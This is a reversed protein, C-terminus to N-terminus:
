PQNQHREGLSKRCRKTQTRNQKCIKLVGLSCHSCMVPMVGIIESLALLVGNCRVAVAVAVTVAVALGALALAVAVAVIM